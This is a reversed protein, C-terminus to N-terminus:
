WFEWWRKAGTKKRLRRLQQKALKAIRGDGSRAVAECLAQARDYEGTEELLLAACGQAKTLWKSPGLAIVREFGALAGAPDDNRYYRLYGLNMGAEAVVEPDRSTLARSFARDAEVFDRTGRLLLGLDLAAEAAADADGRDLCRRLRNAADRIHGRSAEMAAHRFLGEVLEQVSGVEYDYQPRKRM